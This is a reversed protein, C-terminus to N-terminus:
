SQGGEDNWNMVVVKIEYFKFNHLNNATIEIVTVKNFSILM